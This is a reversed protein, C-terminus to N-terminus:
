CRRAVVENKPLVGDQLYVFITDLEPDDRQKGALEPLYVHSMYESDGDSCQVPVCSLVDANANSRGPRHKIDLDLEQIILVWRALKAFPHSGHLLSTCASHYTYVICKHGLLYPRFLRAAWM